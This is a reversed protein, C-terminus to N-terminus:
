LGEAIRACPKDDIWPNPCIKAIKRHWLFEQRWELANAASLVDAGQSSPIPMKVAKPATIREIGHVRVAMLCIAVAVIFFLGSISKALSHNRHVAISTSLM